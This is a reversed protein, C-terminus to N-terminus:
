FVVLREGDGVSAPASDTVRLADRGKYAVRETKVNRSQMDAPADLPISRSTVQPFGTALASLSTVILLVVPPRILKPGFCQETSNTQM